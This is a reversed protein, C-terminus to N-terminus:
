IQYLSAGSCIVQNGLKIKDVGGPTDAVEGM